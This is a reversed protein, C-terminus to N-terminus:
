YTWVELVVTLLLLFKNICLSIVSHYVLKLLQSLTVHQGPQSHREEFSEDSATEYDDDSSDRESMVVYQLRYCYNKCILEKCDTLSHPFNLIYFPNYKIYSKGDTGHHKLRRRFVCGRMCSMIWYYKVIVSSGGLSQCRSQNLKVALM